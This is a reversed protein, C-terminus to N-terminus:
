NRPLWPDTTQDLKGELTQVCKTLLKEFLVGYPMCEIM